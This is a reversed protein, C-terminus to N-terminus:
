FYINLAVRWGSLNTLNSFGMVDFQVQENYFWTAGYTFDNSHQVRFTSTRTADNNPNAPAPATVTPAEVTGDGRTVQTTTPTRDTYQITETSTTASVTHQVGLNLNLSKALNIVVAMPLELSNTVTEYEYKRTYSSTAVTTTNNYPNPTGSNYVTTTNDTQKRTNSNSSAKSMGVLGLGMKWGKALFQLRTHLEFDLTGRKGEYAAVNDTTVNSQRNVLGYTGDIEQYNHIDNIYSTFKPDSYKGGRTDVSAIGTFLIDQSVAYDARVDVVIGLDTGPFSGYGTLYGEQRQTRVYDQGGTMANTTNSTMEWKLDNGYSVLYPRVNAILGWGPLLDNMGAGVTVELETDGYNFSGSSSAESQQTLAGTILDYTKANFKYTFSSETLHSWNPNYTSNYSNIQARVAAGLDFGVLTGLGYAAYIDTNFSNNTRDYSWHNEQRSTLLGGAAVYTNYTNEVFGPNPSSDSDWDLALGARGLGTDMQGALTYYNTGTSSFVQDTGYNELNALQGWFANKKFGNMYVPSYRFFDYTDEFMGQTSRATFSYTNMVAAASMPWVAAALTIM